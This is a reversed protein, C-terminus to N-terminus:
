AEKDVLAGQSTNNDGTGYTPQLRGGTAIIELMQSVHLLSRQALVWNSLSQHQLLRVRGSVDKVQKSLGGSNGSPLSAALEGLTGAPLGENGADALLEARRQHCAQLRACLQETRPELATIGPLDNDAIRERKAALVNLLEDQVESLEDLLAAIQDVFEPKFDSSTTAPSM